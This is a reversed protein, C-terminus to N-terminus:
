RQGHRAEHLDRAGQLIRQEKQQAFSLPQSKATQNIHGNGRWTRVAAKWDKMSNKGVKWGNATYYDVFKQADGQFGIEKMYTDVELISPPVFRKVKPKITESETVAETSSRTIVSGSKTIATNDKTIVSNDHLWRNKMGKRGAESKKDKFQKVEAIIQKSYPFTGKGSVMDVALQYFKQARENEPTTVVELLFTAADIRYFFPKKEKM